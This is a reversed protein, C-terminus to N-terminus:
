RKLRRDTTGDWDPQRLTSITENFRQDRVRERELTEKAAALEDILHQSLEKSTKALNQEIMTQRQETRMLRGPVSNDVFQPDIIQEATPPTFHPVVYRGVDASTREATVAHRIVATAAAVLAAGCVTAVTITIVTSVQEPM